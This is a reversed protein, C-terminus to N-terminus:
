QFTSCCGRLAQVHSSSSRGHLKDAPTAVPDDFMIGCVKVSQDFARLSLDFFVSIAAHRFELGVTVTPLDEWGIDARATWAFSITGAKYFLETSSQILDDLTAFSGFRIYSVLDVLDITRLETAVDRLNDSLIASYCELDTEFYKTM